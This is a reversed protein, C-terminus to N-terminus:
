IGDQEGCPCITGTHKLSGCYECQEYSEYSWFRGEVIPPRCIVTLEALPLYACKPEVRVGDRMYSRKYTNYPTVIQVTAIGRKDVHRINGYMPKNRLQRRNLGKKTYRVWSGIGITTM